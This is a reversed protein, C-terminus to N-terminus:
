GGAFPPMFAIRQGEVIPTSWDAFEDNIAPKIQPQDLSFRHQLGVEEWLGTLTAATTTLTEQDRNAEAALKAFYEVTVTKERVGHQNLHALEDLHEPRNLNLFLQPDAPQLLKANLSRLFNRACRRNEALTEALIPQASPQYLALLPEPQQDLPNQYATAQTEDLVKADLLTSIAESTLRPLDCAILLWPTAPDYALAAQLGGLPGPNEELDPITPLPHTGSDDQAVSLFLNRSFPRALAITRQLLTVDEGPLVIQAKDQGMRSSKGGRLILINM